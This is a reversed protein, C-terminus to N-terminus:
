KITEGLYASRLQLPIIGYFLKALYKIHKVVYNEVISSFASKREQKLGEINNKQIRDQFTSHPIKNINVVKRISIEKKFHCKDSLYTRM